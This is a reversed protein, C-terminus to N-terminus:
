QTTIKAVENFIYQFSSWPLIRMKGVGMEGVKTSSDDGNQMRQM